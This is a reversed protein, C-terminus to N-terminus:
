QIQALFVCDIQFNACTSVTHSWDLEEDERDDEETIDKKKDYSSKSRRFSKGDATDVHLFLIVTKILASVVGFIRLTM